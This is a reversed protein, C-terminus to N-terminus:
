LIASARLFAVFEVVPLEFPEFMRGAYAIFAHKRLRLLEAVHWFPTLGCQFDLHVDIPVIEVIDSGEPAWLINAFAAGHVGVVLRARSFLAVQEAVTHRSHDFLVVEAARRAAAALAAALHPLNTIARGAGHVSQRLPVLLLPKSTSAAAAAAASLAAAAAHPLLARRLAALQRLHPADLASPSALLVRCAFHLARPSHHAIASAPLGLLSLHQRTWAFDYALLKCPPAALTQRLEAFLLAKPLADVTWHWYNATWFQEIPMLCAHAEVAAGEAEGATANAGFTKAYTFSHVNEIGRAAPLTGVRQAHRRAFAALTIDAPRLTVSAGDAAVRALGLGELALLLRGLGNVGPLREFLYIRGDRPPRPPTLVLGDFAIFSPELQYLRRPRWMSGSFEEKERVDAASSYHFPSRQAFRDACHEDYVARQQENVGAVYYTAAPHPSPRPISPEEYLAHCGLCRHDVVAFSGTTHADSLLQEEALSAPSTLSASSALLALHAM